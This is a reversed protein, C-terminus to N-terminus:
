QLVGIVDKYGENLTIRVRKCDHKPAQRSM